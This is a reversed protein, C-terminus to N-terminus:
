NSMNFSRHTYPPTPPPKCRKHVQAPRQDELMAPNTCMHAKVPPPAYTAQFGVRCGVHLTSSRSVEWSDVLPKRTYFWTCVWVCFSIYFQNILAAPQLKWLYCISNPGNERVDARTPLLFPETLTCFERSYICIVPITTSWGETYVSPISVHLECTMM